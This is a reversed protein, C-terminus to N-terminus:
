KLTENTPITKRLVLWMTRKMEVDNEDDIEEEDQAGEKNFTSDKNM